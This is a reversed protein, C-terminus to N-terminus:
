TLMSSRSATILAQPVVSPGSSTLPSPTTFTLSKSATILLQPAQGYSSCDLPRADPGDRPSPPLSTLTIPASASSSHINRAEIATVYQPPNITTPPRM